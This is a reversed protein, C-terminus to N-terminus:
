TVVSYDIQYVLYGANVRRKDAEKNRLEWCGWSFCAIGIIFLM